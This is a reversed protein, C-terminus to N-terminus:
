INEAVSFLSMDTTIFLRIATINKKAQDSNGPLIYSIQLPQQRARITSVSPYGGRLHTLMNSTNGAVYGLETYCLRGVTKNKNVVKEM